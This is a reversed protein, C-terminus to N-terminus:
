QGVREDTYWFGSSERVLTFEVGAAIRVRWAREREPLNARFRGLVELPLEPLEALREPPHGWAFPRIACPARRADLRVDAAEWASPPAAWGAETALSRICLPVARGQCRFGAGRALALVLAYGDAVRHVAYGAKTGRLLVSRAAALSPQATTADLV